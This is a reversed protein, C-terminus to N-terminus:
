QMQVHSAQMAVVLFAALGFYLLAVVFRQSRTVEFYREEEPTKKRFLLYLRPLSIILILLLILNFHTFLLALIVVLGVSWLWPSVASVIRGGDLVGIPALNFLNLFFGTYALARYLESGTVMYLGVCALAGITGLLPGGLAVRAEIWADKPAEKLAIVAGMFPIFMPAGVPLGVQRAAVLHGLEHVLLLVVFGVAYRWGWFMAYVWVSLFMTAGSKLMVPFFKVVPLVLFKLKALFKGAVLLAVGLPAIIKKLRAWLGPRTVPRNEPEMPSLDSLETRDLM